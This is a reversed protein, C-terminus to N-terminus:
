FFSDCVQRLTSLSLNSAKNAGSKFDSNTTITSSPSFFMKTSRELQLYQSEDPILASKSPLRRQMPTFPFNTRYPSEGRTLSIISRTPNSERRFIASVMSFASSSKTYLRFYQISIFFLRRVLFLSPKKM